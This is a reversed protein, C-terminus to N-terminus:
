WIFYSMEFSQIHSNYDSPLWKVCSLYRITPCWKNWTLLILCMMVSSSWLKSQSRNFSKDQHSTDGNASTHGTSIKDSSASHLAHSRVRQRVRSVTFRSGSANPNQIYTSSTQIGPNPNLSLNSQTFLTTNSATKAQGSPWVSYPSHVSDKLSKQLLVSARREREM